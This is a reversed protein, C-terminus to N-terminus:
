EAVRLVLVWDTAGGSNKGPTSFERKGTVPFPGPIETYNGSAPDFWRARVEGRLQTMDITVSSSKIAAPPIYALLMKGDPTAAAAVYDATGYNGGAGTVLTKMGAIGSPVLNYWPVADLLQGLRMMDLSGASGLASQWPRHGFKYGSWWGSTAFEWIDRNGFFGGATSGGLIAWYQYKRVSAPDGPMWGEDEYGTEKLYAPRPPSDNYATRAEEYTIGNRDKSGYTYVANLDMASAFAPEDTSLCPANWDGAWLQTAGAAKIGEMFKQLRAEGESGRPPFYDGGVVWFINKRNKYRNGIYLGFKYCVDRTNVNNTLATWWGEEGGDYGLYMAALSILMGKSAALDLISDVFAFYAENPTSFDETKKFPADGKRNAPAKVGFKHELLNVNITNFKKAQRDSLYTEAEAYTLNAILSQASDGQIRFPKNNQDVLYRRNASIKLPYAYAGASEAPAKSSQSVGNAILNQPTPFVAEQPGAPPHAISFVALCLGLCMPVAFIPVWALRRM